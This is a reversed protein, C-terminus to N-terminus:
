LYPKMAQHRELVRLNLLVAFSVVEPVLALLRERVHGVIQM